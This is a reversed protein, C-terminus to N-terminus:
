DGEAVKQLATKSVITITTGDIQVIGSRQWQAMCKNVSERTAGVIEGLARQSASIKPKAAAAIGKDAAVIRLLTNALRTSLDFLAIEAVQQDTSRLRACLLEVIAMWAAPERELLSLIDRRDLIALTCDTQATVDGTREKGDLVAIEGVIEGPGLSALVIERGEPSAVSVRLRGSLVVILCDGKAGTLFVTEGHGFTKIRARAVLEARSAEPLGRFLKCEYIVKRAIEKPSLHPEDGM